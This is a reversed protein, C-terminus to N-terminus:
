IMMSIQSMVDDFIEKSRMESKAGTIIVKGSSFLLVVSDSTRHWIIGPFQEPEYIVGSIERAIRLLDLSNSIKGVTVIMCTEPNSIHAHNGLEPNIQAIVEDFAKQVDLITKGGYVMVKGSPFIAFTIKRHYYFLAPFQDPEYSCNLCRRAIEPLNVKKGLYAKNVMSVVKLPSFGSPIPANM